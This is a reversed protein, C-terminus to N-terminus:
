VSKDSLTATPAPTLPSNFFGKLLASHGARHTILRQQEYPRSNMGGGFHSKKLLGEFGTGVYIKVFFM